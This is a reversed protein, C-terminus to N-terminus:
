QSFFHVAVVGEVECGEVFNDVHKHATQPTVRNPQAFVFIHQFLDTGFEFVFVVVLLVDLADLGGELFLFCNWADGKLVLSRLYHTFLLVGEKLVRLFFEVVEVSDFLFGRDFFFM